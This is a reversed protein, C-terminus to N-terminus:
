TERRQVSPAPVAPSAAPVHRRVAAGIPALVPIVFMSLTSAVLITQGLTRDPLKETM